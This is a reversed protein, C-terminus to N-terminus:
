LSATAAEWVNKIWAVFSFKERKPESVIPATKSATTEVKVLQRRRWRAESLKDAWATQDALLAKGKWTLEGLPADPGAILQAARGEAEVRKLNYAELKKAQEKRWKEIDPIPTITLNQYRKKEQVLAPRELYDSLRLMTM